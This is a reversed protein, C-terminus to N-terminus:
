PQDTALDPIKRNNLISGVLIDRGDRWRVWGYFPKGANSYGTYGVVYMWDGDLREFLLPHFYLDVYEKIVEGGPKDRLKILKQNVEVARSYNFFFAWGVKAWNKDSRLIYNTERTDENVEVKYWSSSEGVLRLVVTHSLIDTTKKPALPKFDNGLFKGVTGDPNTVINFRRWLSGDRDYVTMMVREDVAPWRVDTPCGPLEHRSTVGNCGLDSDRWPIILYDSTDTFVEQRPPRIKLSEKEEVQGVVAMSMLPLFCFALVFGRSLIKRQLEDKVMKVGKM